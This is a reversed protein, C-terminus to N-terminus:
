QDKKESDVHECEEESSSSSQAKGCSLLNKAVAMAKKQIERRKAKRLEHLVLAELTDRQMRSVAHEKSLGKLKDRLQSVTLNELGNLKKAKRRRKKIGDLVPHANPAQPLTQSDSMKQEKNTSCQYCEYFKFM